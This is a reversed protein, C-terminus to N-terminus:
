SRNVDIDPSNLMIINIIREMSEVMFEFRKHQDEHHQKLIGQMQKALELSNERAAEQMDRQHQHSVNIITELKDIYSKFVWLGPLLIALILIYEVPLVKLLSLIEEWPVELPM